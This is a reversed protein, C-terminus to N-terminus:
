TCGLAERFDVHDETADIVVCACLEQLLACVCDSPVRIDGELLLRGTRSEQICQVTRRGTAVGEETVHSLRILTQRRFEALTQVSQPSDVGASLLDIGTEITATNSTTVRNRM